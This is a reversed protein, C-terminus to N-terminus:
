LSGRFLSIFRDIEPAPLGAITGLVELPNPLPSQWLWAVNLWFGPLVQSTYVGERGPQIMRYQGAHLQYFEARQTFPDLLWYEPVGGREYEYFKDGRDRGASEPSLIEVVLDAPGDVYTNKLRDRHARNIFILDPERGHEMKMQFPASIVIGLNKSAVFIRIVSVLFAAIDQHPLSAPSSMIVEGDVWEANTDEDAWDLFETYTMRLRRNALQEQALVEALQKRYAPERELQRILEAVTLERQEQSAAEKFPALPM